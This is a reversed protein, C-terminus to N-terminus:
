SPGLMEKVDYSMLALFAALGIYLTAYTLKTEASASYYAANEPAASNYRLARMVQPAALIAMVVLLPSPRWLFLGILIPVGVLWMRPSLISSVRGGDFPALPILNFLNIFFGAYSLALLLRSDYERALVYCVLAGFTGVLPGALAVYAETEVNMPTDKLAIWAGFFPIFVPAGVALGKQRAAIYHGMEHVFILAVFGVAYVWGFVLSYAAISLAMTGVVLLLKGLKASTFLLALIKIV